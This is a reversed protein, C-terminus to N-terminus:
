IPMLIEAEFTTDFFSLSREVAARNGRLDQEAAPM